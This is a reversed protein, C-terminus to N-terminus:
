GNAAHMRQLSDRVVAPADPQQALQELLALLTREAGESTARHADAYYRIAGVDDSFPLKVPERYECSLITAAGGGYIGPFTLSRWTEVDILGANYLRYAARLAERERCVMQALPRALRFSMSSYALEIAGGDHECHYEFDWQTEFEVTGSSTDFLHQISAERAQPDAGLEQWANRVTAPATADLSDAAAPVDERAKAAKANVAYVVVAALVAALIVVAISGIASAPQCVMKALGAVAFWLAAFTIWSRVGWGRFM